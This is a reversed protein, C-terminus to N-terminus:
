APSVLKLPEVDPAADTVITVAALLLVVVASEAEASCAVPPCLTINPATTVGVEPEPVGVPLTVNKSPAVDSPIAVSLPPDPETLLLASVSGSGGSLTAM